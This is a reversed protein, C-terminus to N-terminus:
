CQVTIHYKATWHSELSPHNITPVWLIQYPHQRIARFNVVQTGQKDKAPLNWSSSISWGSFLKDLKTIKRQQWHHSNDPRQCRRTRNKFKILNYILLEHSPSSDTSEIRSSYNESYLVFRVSCKFVHCWSLLIHGSVLILQLDVNLSSRFHPGLYSNHLLLIRLVKRFCSKSGCIKVHAVAINGAWLEVLFSSAADAM